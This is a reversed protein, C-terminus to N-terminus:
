QEFIALNDNIQKDTLVPAYHVLLPCNKNVSIYRECYEIATQINGKIRAIHSYGAYKITIKYM